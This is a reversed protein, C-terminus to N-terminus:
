RIAEWTAVRRADDRFQDANDTYHCKAMHSGDVTQLQPEESCDVTAFPCRDAFVCGGPSNVLDPPTGPITILKGGREEITPFANRLGMTYPHSPQEFVERTPGKEIIQGGYMVAVKDAIEAIVHIDHSIFIMSNGLESQLDVLLDLIRDQIVVDLGTTPEDAITVPPSLVLALAIVVRQRQGGSLEHPYDHMRNEDLGVRVLLEKARERADKKSDNTHTRIVETFQSGIRHVPDLANMANQAIWSIEKWRVERKLDADSYDVFNKGDYDITGASIRGNDPLLRLIAKALTTKGSGSEGVLGVIEGNEVTLSTDNVAKLPGDQTEYEVSLNNIHLEPM